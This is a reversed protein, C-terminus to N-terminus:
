EDFIYFPTKGNYVEPIVCILEATQKENDEILTVSEVFLTTKNYLFISTNRVTIVEDPIILNDNEDQWRNISIVFKINKVEAAVANRAATLTDNDTGSTQNIVKPRFVFPVFPNNVTAQGADGGDEDAQRIVTISSHMKQGDFKMSMDVGPISEGDFNLIPKKETDARKFVVEGKTNHSIIINKQSCLSALYSKITQTPGATTVDIPTNMAASVNPEVVKKLKFPRFIRAAIENISQGDFQLPYISVPIQCDELVGPLSYGSIETLEKTSKDVYNQSLIIGSLLIQGEEEITVNHFHAVHGLEKHEPNDPDFYWKFSFVSAVADFTLTLRFKNFFDVKLTKRRVTDIIKLIM